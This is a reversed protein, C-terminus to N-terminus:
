KNRKLAIGYNARSPILHFALRYCIQIFPILLTKSSPTYGSEVPEKSYRDDIRMWLRRMLKYKVSDNFSSLIFSTFIRKEAFPCVVTFCQNALVNSGFITYRGGRGYVFEYYTLAQYSDLNLGKTKDRFDNIVLELADDSLGSYKWRLLVLPSINFDFLWPFLKLIEGRLGKPSLYTGRQLTDGLYGDFLVYAEEFIDKVYKYNLYLYPIPKVVGFALDDVLKQADKDDPVDTFSYSKYRIFRDSYKGAILIEPSKEPGYTYGYKFSGSALIFRSDLGSSIPLVRNELPWYEILENCIDTLNELPQADNPDIKYYKSTKNVSTVAGPELREIGKYLTYNGFCHGKLEFVEELLECKVHVNSDYLLSVTPSVTLKKSTKDIYHTSLGLPDTIISDNNEGPPSHYIVFNSAMLNNLCQMGQEVIDRSLEDICNRKGKYIFWGSVAFYNGKYMFSPENKWENKSYILIGCGNPLDLRAFDKVLPPLTSKTNLYLGKM